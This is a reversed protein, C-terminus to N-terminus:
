FFIEPSPCLRKRPGRGCHPNPFGSRVACGVVMPASADAGEAGRHERRHREIKRNKGRNWDQIRWQRYSYYNYSLLKIRYQSQTQSVTM